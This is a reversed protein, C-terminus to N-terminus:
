GEKLMDAMKKEREKLVESLQRQSKDLENNLHLFIETANRDKPNYHSYAKLLPSLSLERGLTNEDQHERRLYYVLNFLNEYEVNNYIITQRGSLYYALDFYALGIDKDAEKEIRVIEKYMEQSRFADQGAMLQYSLLGFRVIETGIPDRAPGCSLLDYGLKRYDEYLRGRFRFSMFPNLIYSVRFVLIDEPISQQILHRVHEAKKPDSSEFFELIKPDEKLAKAFAESDLYMDKALAFIDNYPKDHFTYAM